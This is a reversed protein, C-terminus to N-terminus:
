PTAGVMPEALAHEAVLAAAGILFGDSGLTGPLIKLRAAAQPFSHQRVTEELAPFFLDAADMREGGLVIAEPNLLNVLNKIGLGLTRGMRTFVEKAGADGLRAAEALGPIGAHGFRTAEGSLFRDSAYVELCGQEGCRCAAGNPDFTTHGIEGAAGFAGRYLTGDLVIGAGIGEGVTLCVFHTYSRGAGHLHEALTLANVDNEVQVSFPLAGELRGALPIDKWGLIPSYLHTRRAADVSGSVSVGVGLIRGATLQRVAKVIEDIVAPATPPADLETRCRALVRGSLDVRAALLQLREVKIGITAAFSPNFALLMPRRGGGSARKGVERIVGERLLTQTRRTLVSPSLGTRRALDSRSLPGERRLLSVLLRRNYKRLFTQNGKPVSM